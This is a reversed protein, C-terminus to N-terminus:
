CGHINENKEAQKDFYRSTPTNVYVLPCDPHKNDIYDDVDMIRKVRGAHCDGFHEAWCGRCSLPKVALPIYIGM